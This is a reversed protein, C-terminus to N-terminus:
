SYFQASAVTRQTLHWHVISDLLKLRYTVIGGDRFSLGYLPHQRIFDRGQKTELQNDWVSDLFTSVKDLEEDSMADLISMIQDYESAKFHDGRDAVLFVPCDDSDRQSTVDSQSETRDDQGAYQVKISEERSTNPEVYTGADVRDIDDIFSQKLAIVSFYPMLMVEHTSDPYYKRDYGIAEALSYESIIYSVLYSWYYAHTGFAARLYVYAPQPGASLGVESGKVNYTYMVSLLAFAADEPYHPIPLRRRMEEIENDPISLESTDHTTILKMGIRVLMASLSERVDM